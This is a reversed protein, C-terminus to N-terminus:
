ITWGSGPADPLWTYDVWKALEAVGQTVVTVQAPDPSGAQIARSAALVPEFIDRWRLYEPDQKVAPDATSEILSNAKELVATIAKVRAESDGDGNWLETLTRGLVAAFAPFDLDEAV